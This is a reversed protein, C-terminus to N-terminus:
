HNRKRAFMKKQSSTGIEIFFTYAYVKGIIIVGTPGLIIIDLGRVRPIPAPFFILTCLANVGATKTHLAFQM